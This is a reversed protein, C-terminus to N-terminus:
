ASLDLNDGSMSLIMRSLEDWTNLKNLGKVSQDILSADNLFAQLQALSHNNLATSVPGMKNRWVRESQMVASISQGNELQLAMKCLSRIEKCIFNLIKLPDESEAKLHYLINLARASNGAIATDILTFVNFRASDAVARAVMSADLEKNDALISLKDIEQATALLNGETRQCLIDIAQGDATLGHSKLRQRIWAALNQSNIPWIVIFYAETEIQKFWKTNTAAKEVRPSSILLLNDESPNALYAHLAKKGADDLKASNLRLDILKKEAFLSLSNSSELLINWDFGSHVTYVERESFGQAQAFKRIQDCSEQVLLTEDGAVWIVPPIKNTLESLVQEPKVQM